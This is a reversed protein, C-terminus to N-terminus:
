GPWSLVNALKIEGKENAFVNEPRIDGLKESSKM